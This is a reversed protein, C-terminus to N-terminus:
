VAPHVLQDLLQPTPLLSPAPQNRLAAECAAIVDDLINRHPQKLTAVAPMMTEVVRSGEPRQTGFSGKRWLVGSRIAREAANNTPEVEPHRV